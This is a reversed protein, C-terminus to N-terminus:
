PVECCAAMAAMLLHWASRSTTLIPRGCGGRGPVGPWHVATMKVLFIPNPGAFTGRSVQRRRKGATVLAEQGSHCCCGFGLGLGVM